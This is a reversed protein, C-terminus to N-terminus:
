RCVKPLEGRENVAKLFAKGPGTPKTCPNALKEMKTGKTYSGCKLCYIYGQFVATKHSSHIIKYGVRHPVGKPLHKPADTNQDLPDGRCPLKLWAKLSPDTNLFHEKCILCKIDRPVFKHDAFVHSSKGILSTVTDEM